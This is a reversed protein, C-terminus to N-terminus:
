KYYSERMGSGVHEDNIAQSGTKLLISSEMNVDKKKLTNAKRILPEQTNHMMVAHSRKNTTVLPWINQGRTQANTKTTRSNIMQIATEKLGNVQRCENVASGNKYYSPFNM